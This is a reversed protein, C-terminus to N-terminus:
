AVRSGAYGNAPMAIASLRGSLSPGHGIVVRYPLEAAFPRGAVNVVQWPKRSGILNM